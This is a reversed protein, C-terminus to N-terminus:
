LKGPIMAFLEERSHIDLKKYINNIHTKATGHAIVMTQAIETASKNEFLLCLVECERDSLKFISAICSSYESSEYTTIHKFEPRSLETSVIKSTIGLGIMTCMILLIIICVALLAHSLNAVEADILADALLFFQRGGLLGIYLSLILLCSARTPESNEERSVACYLVLVFVLYTYFGVNSLISPALTFSTHILTLLIGTITLPAAIFFLTSIQIQHSFLIIVSCFLLSYVISTWDFVNHFHELSMFSTTYM